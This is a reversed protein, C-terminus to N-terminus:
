KSRKSFLQISYLSAIYFLLEPVSVRTLYIIIQIYAEGCSVQTVKPLNNM